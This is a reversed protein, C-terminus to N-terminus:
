MKLAFTNHKILSAMQEDTLTLNLIVRDGSPLVRAKDLMDAMDPNDKSQYRKYLLGAQLLQAMTNALWIGCYVIVCLVLFALVNNVMRHRYDDHEGRAYKGVDEVPSRRADHRLNDNRARPVRPRFLVVRGKEPDRGHEQSKMKNEHRFAAVRATM